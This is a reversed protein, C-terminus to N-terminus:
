PILFVIISPGVGITLNQIQWKLFGQFLRNTGWFMLEVPRYEQSIM